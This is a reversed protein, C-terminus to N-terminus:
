PAHLTALESESLGAALLRERRAAQTHRSGLLGLFGRGRRVGDGVVADFEAGHDLLVLVDANGFDAVAARAEDLETVQRSRWGLVAAQAALADGIAGKG